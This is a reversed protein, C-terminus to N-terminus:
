ISSGGDSSSQCARSRIYLKRVSSERRTLVLTQQVLNSLAISQKQALPHDAPVFACLRDIVVKQVM